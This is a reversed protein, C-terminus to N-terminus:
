SGTCGPQLGVPPGRVSSPSHADPSIPIGLAARARMPCKFEEDRGNVKVCLTCPYRVQYKVKKERLRRTVSSFERYCKALATSHDENFYVRSGNLVSGPYVPHKIRALRIIKVKDQYNLLKMIITRPSTKSTDRQTPTRHAREIIIPDPFNDHGLLSPILQSMFQIM